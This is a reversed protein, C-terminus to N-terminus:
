LHLNSAKKKKWSHIMEVLDKYVGIIANSINRNKNQSNGFFLKIHM